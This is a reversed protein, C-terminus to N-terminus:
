LINLAIIMMVVLICIMLINRRRDNKKSRCLTQRKNCGECIIYTNGDEEILM